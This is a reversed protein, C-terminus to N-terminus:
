TTLFFGFSKKEGRLLHEQARVRPSVAELDEISGGLEQELQAHISRRHIFGCAACSDALAREVAVEDVFGAEGRGEEVVSDPIHMGSYQLSWRWQTRAGRSALAEAGEDIRVEMVDGAVEVEDEERLAVGRFTAEVSFRVREPPTVDLDEEGVDPVFAGGVGRLVPCDWGHAQEGLLDYGDERGSLEVLPQAPLVAVKIGENRLDM